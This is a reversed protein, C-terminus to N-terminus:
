DEDKSGLIWPTGKETHEGRKVTYGLKRLAPALRKIVGTLKRPSKPWENRKRMNGDVLADLLELLASPTETVGRKCLTRIYPGALESEIVVEHAENRRASYAEMFSGDPWGLAPEASTVWQCLDAMSPLKDLEVTDIRGLAGSLADCLAGLLRPHVADFAAWFEAEPLRKEDPIVPLEIRLTRRLLDGRTAVEEIGNFIVPRRVDILHEGEDTFLERKSQGGGTALRCLDDSLWDQVGSVNDFAAVHSAYASVFLDDSKSPMRRLPTSSPDIMARLAREATSKATGEEGVLECVAYPTDPRAADLLWGIVLRRDADGEELNLLDALEGLSGGREPVPLPAMGATRRFRVPHRHLVEWGEATIRICRWEEDGLDIYITSGADGAIRLHVPLTEGDFVAMAELTGEADKRAQAPLVSEEKRHFLQRLYLGFEKSGIRHTEVHDDVEYMAYATRNEGHFLEVGADRVMEVLRDAIKNGGKLAKLLDATSEIGEADEPDVGAAKLIDDVTLDTLERKAGGWFETMGELAKGITKDRYDSREWKSRMLRSSRFLHDIHDPDPGTWFALLRCLSCDAESDSSYGSTDGEYLARLKPGNKARFARALLEYDDAGATPKPKAPEEKKPPWFFAHVEDLQAQRSEVPLPEDGLIDGTLYVFRDRDYIEIEDGWPTDATRNRGGNLAARLMVHLGEGSQSRETYSKLDAIIAAAARHIGGEGIVGDLDILCYPDDGTLAFGIGDFGSEAAQVAEPFTVWSDPATSSAHYDSDAACYPPKRVKSPDDPDPEIKWVVWHDRERLERPINKYAAKV